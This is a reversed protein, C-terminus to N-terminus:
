SRGFSSFATPRLSFDLDEGNKRDGVIEPHYKLINPLSLFLSHLLIISDTLYNFRHPIIICQPPPPLRFM